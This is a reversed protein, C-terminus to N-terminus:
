GALLFTSDAGHLPLRVSQRALALRCLVASADTRPNTGRGSFPATLLEARHSLLEGNKPLDRTDISSTIQLIAQQWALSRNMGSTRGTWVVFGRTGSM